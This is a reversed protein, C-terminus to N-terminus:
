EEISRRMSGSVDLLLLLDLPESERGFYVIKQPQNEDLVEFDDRTLDSVIRNNRSTVQADVRVLAVGARFVPNENSPQQPAPQQAILSASLLLIFILRMFFM